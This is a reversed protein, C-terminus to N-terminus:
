IVESTWVETDASYYASLRKVSTTNSEGGYVMHSEVHRGCNSRAM